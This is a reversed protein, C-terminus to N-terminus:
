DALLFEGKYERGSDIRILIGNDGSVSGMGTPLAVTWM